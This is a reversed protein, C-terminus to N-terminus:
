MRAAEKEYVREQSRRVMGQPETVYEFLVVVGEAALSM